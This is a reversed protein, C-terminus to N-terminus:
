HRSVRRKCASFARSGLRGGSIDEVKAPRSVGANNFLIDLRGYDSMVTDVVQQWNSGSTVDLHLYRVQAGKARMEAASREGVDDRVDTIVVAKAGERVLLHATAGGFGMIENELAAAAGTLIAVKDKVRM